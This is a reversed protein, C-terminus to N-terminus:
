KKNRVIKIAVLNLIILLLIPLMLNANVGGGTRVVPMLCSKKIQLAKFEQMAILNTIKDVVSIKIDYIGERVYNYASVDDYNINYLYKGNSDLTPVLSYILTNSNYLEIKLDPKESNYVLIDGFGKSCIYLDKIELKIPKLEGFNNTISSQDADLKIDTQKDNTMIGQTTAGSGVSDKGDLYDTPQTESLTYTGPRLNLFEWYGDNNTLTTLSTNNKRDDIGSLRIEINNLGSEGIEKQGNNNADLWTFGTIKSPSLEGFNNDISKNGFALKIAVLRNYSSTGQNFAGTGASQIGDLYNIPQSETITYTGPILNNFIYVGISNTSTVFEVDKGDIDKGTLTVIVNNIPLDIQDKIGNNNKDNFVYGSLAASLYLGDM